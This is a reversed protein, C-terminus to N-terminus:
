HSQGAARAQRILLWLRPPSLPLHCPKVCLSHLAAAIANSVVGGVAILGGEGAGKVGLPNNPCPRVGLSVSRIFPYDTASPLLYDALSGTLLQGRDDYQLHELFTSGLGQVVAGLVQGHLTAPNVVRGVDEVTVYDLIDVHGTGPDVAVHAAHAGYSYTLKKNHFQREVSLGAFESLDISNENFQVIGDSISMTEPRCGLRRAGEKRILELLAKAALLISSGGLVTARSHFSGFGENVLTTSGHFLRIRDIPLRLADAAIQSM